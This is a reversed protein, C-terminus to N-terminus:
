EKGESYFGYVTVPNLSLAPPLKFFPPPKKYLDFDQHRRDWSWRDRDLVPQLVNAFLANERWEETPETTAGIPLLKLHDSETSKHLGAVQFGDATLWAQHSKKKAKKGEEQSDQPEVMASLYNQSYTFRRGPEKAMQRYLERKAFETSNLTQISYNYVADKMPVSSRIVKVASEPTKKGVQSVEMINKQILSRKQGKNKLLVTNRWQLYKEQHALIEYTLTSHRSRFDELNPAPHHPVAMFTRDTLEEPSFPLGFEHSLHKIMASSPLLDRTVVERLSASYHCIYFIRTLAQFAKQMMTNRLYLALHKMLQPVPKFLHVHYLITELDAYLRHQFLLQSNYLVKHKGHESKTIRSQHSEWLRKLGQDAVGEVILLHVKGDLLHFGTLVDLDQREQIKARVKFASLIQQISLMPCSDLDLAKANILTIDQLLSYLLFAKRSDFVFIIRGFQTGALDPNAAEAVARLPVTIDVRLKLLSNAELYNGMPMPGHHLADTPVSFGMVKRSRSDQGQHIHKPECSHIPVALNLYKHGLLLDAFSVQAVGYPDWMKNQSEFPNNKTEKPSILAQFNIYSDLPDEGFLTPKRSYEESKRDRDHVEVVMPPGELYERLDNPHMAGLFIVNIDQFSVHSGHPQGETQHVPTKHFQYRCYVPTCLRELEHFPVPQSPLCSAKKIKIILPNLDQKQEETMIPGEPKLTLICDLINASRESSRSVVTQCGALLPMVALQISFGRGRRRHDETDEEASYKKRRRHNKKERDSEKWKVAVGITAPDETRLLKEDEKTSRSSTELEASHSGHLSKLPKEAKEPKGSSDQQNWDEQTHVSQESLRRQNLVLHKVEESKGLSEADESHGDAKLRHHRVKKSVKDATDWLRLTIKYFNLKKLLEKTMNINFVQSWSVWVKDGEHWPKVTKLGSDLFVKVITPLVVLDVKKPEKDDPLLFYELHYFHHGKGVPKDMKLHKRYKEVLNIFKGKHGVNAPFALSIIFKCPVVQPMDSIFTSTAGDSSEISSYHQDSDSEQAQARVKLYDEVDCESVSPCFSGMSSVLGMSMTDEDEWDWANLSM